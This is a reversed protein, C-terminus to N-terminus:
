ESSRLHKWLRFFVITAVVSMASYAIVSSWAAGVAGNDPIILAGSVLLAVVGALGSASAGWMSGLGAITRGLVLFPALALEAILLVRFSNAAELYETGYVIPFVIDAVLWGVAAMPVLILFLKALRKFITRPHAEGSAADHFSSQGLANAPIRLIGAPTTAVAYLGVESQASLAGLMITDARYTLSQGLNLGLLRLGDRVLRKMGTAEGTQAGRTSRSYQLAMAFQVVTSLAYSWIIAVLGLQLVTCAAVFLLCVLSGLANIRASQPVHGQANLLDLAQASAFYGFGYGLFALGIRWDGFSPDVFTAMLYAVAVLVIALPVLLIVSLREYGRITVGERRPLHRRIAVNSGLASLLVCLGAVSVALALTGRSEPGLGRATLIGTGASVAVAM